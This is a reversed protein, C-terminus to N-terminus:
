VRNQDKKFYDRRRDKKWDKRDTEATQWAVTGRRKELGETLSIRKEM